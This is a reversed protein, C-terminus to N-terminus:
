HEGNQNLNQLSEGHENATSSFPPSAESGDRPRIRQRMWRTAWVGALVGLLGLWVVASAVNSVAEEPPAIIENSPV